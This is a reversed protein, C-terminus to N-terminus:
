TVNNAWVGDGEVGYGDSGKLLFWVRWKGPTTGEDGDGTTKYGALNLAKKAKQREPRKCHIFNKFPINNGLNFTLLFVGNEEGGEYQWSSDCGWSNKTCALYIEVPELEVITPIELRINRIKGEDGDIALINPEISKTDNKLSVLIQDNNKLVIKRPKRKKYGAKVANLEVKKGENNSAYLLTASGFEDTYERQPKPPAILTVKSNRLVKTADGSEHVVVFIKSYVHTDRTSFFSLVILLLIVTFVMGLIIVVLNFLQDKDLITISKVLPDFSDEPFLWFLIAIACLVMFMAFGLFTRVRKAFNALEQIM